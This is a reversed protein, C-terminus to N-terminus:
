SQVNKTLLWLQPVMEAEYRLMMANENLGKVRQGQSLRSIIGNFYRPTDGVFIVSVKQGLLQEFAVTSDAEAYMALKFHFLQSIRVNSDCFGPGMKLFGGMGADGAASRLRSKPMRANCISKM